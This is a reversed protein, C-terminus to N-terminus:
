KSGELIKDAETNKAELEKKKITLLKLASKTDYGKKQLIKHFETLAKVSKVNKNMTLQDTTYEISVKENLEDKYDIVLLEIEETSDNDTFTINDKHGLQKHLTLALQSLQNRYESDSCDPNIAPHYIRPKKILVKAGSMGNCHKTLDWIRNGQNDVASKGDKSPLRIPDKNYLFRGIGWKVCARKFADSVQGKEKEVNSESGCDWKTVWENDCLISVGCFLKRDIEKYEDKWKAPGVVKDLLEEADRATIYALINVMAGGKLKGQVRWQFPIEQKLENLNM